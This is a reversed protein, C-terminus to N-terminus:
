CILKELAQRRAASRFLTRVDTGITLDERQEMSHGAHPALDLMEPANESYAIIALTEDEVALLCGFPQVFQGRQM